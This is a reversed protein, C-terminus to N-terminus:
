KKKNKAKKSSGFTQIITQDGMSVVAGKGSVKILNGNVVDGGASVSANRSRSPADRIPDNDYSSDDAYGVGPIYIRM